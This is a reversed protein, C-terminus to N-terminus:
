FFWSAITQRGGGRVVEVEHLLNPRFAVLTGAEGKLEHALSPQLTVTMSTNGRVLSGAAVSEYFRLAGGCFTNPGPEERQDNLFLVVSLKRAHLYAFETPTPDPVADYHPKFFDGPHYSLFQPEECGSLKLAFHQELLSKAAVLREEIMKKTTDTVNAWKTKRANEDTKILYTEGKQFVTAQTVVAAQAEARIRGCLPKDLFNRLVLLENTSNHITYAGLM